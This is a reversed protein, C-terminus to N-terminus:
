PCGQQEVSLITHIKGKDMLAITDALQLAEERQHTVYLTTIALKKTVTRLEALLKRKLDPDLNSFPEDLLLIKPEAALARALALRQQEGGSLQRPYRAADTLRVLHLVSDIASERAKKGRCEAPLAFGIHQALTMHPWLALDQFVMALHRQHPALIKEATSVCQGSLWIEGTEPAELGAVLRLSTTKGCGSPGLLALTQGQDVALDLGTVAPYAGYSKTVNKIHIATKTPSPLPSIVAGPHILSVNM